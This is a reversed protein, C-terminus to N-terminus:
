ILPIFTMLSPWKASPLVFTEVYFRVHQSITGASTSLLALLSWTQHQVLCNSPVYGGYLIGLCHRWLWREWVSHGLLFMSSSQKWTLMNCLALFITQYPGAMVGMQATRASCATQAATQQTLLEMPLM